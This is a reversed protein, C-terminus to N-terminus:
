RSLKEAIYEEEGIADILRLQQELWGVHKQHWKLLHEYLNRSADDLAKMCVQVQQEYPAVIAMELALTNNLMATLGAQESVPAVDYSPDGGLFLARDVVKKLFCHADDGIWKLKKVVKKVGMYSLTRADLRSQLNLHAELAAAARLGAIVEPSGKM